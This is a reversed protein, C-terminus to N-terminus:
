ASERAARVTAILHAAVTALIAVVALALLGGSLNNRSTRESRIIVYQIWLFLGALEAQLWAIMGLTIAELRPRNAPTVRVPYNFTQPYFGIVTMLAVACTAIIPLLWLMRPEGWGNINGAFDFHIPIRPPLPPAGYIAQATLTWLAVLAAVAIFALTKRV